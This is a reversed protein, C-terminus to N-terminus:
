KVEVTKIGGTGTFTETWIIPPTYVPPYLPYAKMGDLERKLDIYKELVDIHKELLQIRKEYERELKTM